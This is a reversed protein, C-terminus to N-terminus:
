LLWSALDLLIGAAALLFFLKFRTPPTNSSKCLCSAWGPNTRKRDLTGGVETALWQGSLGTVLWGLWGIWGHSQV